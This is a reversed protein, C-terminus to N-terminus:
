MNVAHESEVRKKRIWQFSLIKESIKGKCAVGHTVMQM